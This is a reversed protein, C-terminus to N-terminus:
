RQRLIHLRLGVSFKSNIVNELLVQSRSAYTALNPPPMEAEGPYCASNRALFRPLLAKYVATKIAYHSRSEGALVFSLTWQCAFSSSTNHEGERQDLPKMADGEHQQMEQM